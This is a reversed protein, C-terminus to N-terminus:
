KSIEFRDSPCIQFIFFFFSFLSFEETGFIFLPWPASNREKKNNNNNNNNNKNNNNNHKPKRETTPESAVMKPETRDKPLCSYKRKKKNLVNRNQFQKKEAEFANEGEGDVM